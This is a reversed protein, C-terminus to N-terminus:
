PEDDGSNDTEVNLLHQLSGARRLEGKMELQEKMTMLLGVSNLADELVADHQAWQYLLSYAESRNGPAACAAERAKEDVLKVAAQIKRIRQSDTLNVQQM